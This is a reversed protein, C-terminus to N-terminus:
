QASILEIDFRLPAYPPIIYEGKSNTTGTEKYGQGSPFILTAKEGQKLKALGENFGAIASKGLTTSYIGNGTSDFASATRLLKGKYKITLTQAATPFKTTSDVSKTKIFRLGTSTKETVSLKNAAIYDDIQQDETRTRNLTLDYRVPSNAPIAPTVTAVNGFALASPILLIVQDGEHMRLFGEELGPPLSHAFFPYFVPTKTSDIFQDTVGTVATTNSPGKLLYLTYTFELEQGYAPTVASTGPKNLAYYLGSATMTGKLKESTAYTLIDIKNSDLIAVATTDLGIDNKCSVMGGILLM